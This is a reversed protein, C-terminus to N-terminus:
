FLEQGSSKGEKADQGKVPTEFQSQGQGIFANAWPFVTVVVGLIPTLPQDIGSTPFANVSHIFTGGRGKRM